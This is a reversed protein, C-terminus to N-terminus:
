EDQRSIKLGFVERRRDPAQRGPALLHGHDLVGVEDARVVQVEHRLKLPDGNGAIVVSSYTTEDKFSKEM